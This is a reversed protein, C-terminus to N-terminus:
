MKDILKRFAPRGRTIKIYNLLDENDTPFEEFKAWTACQTLLIDPVTMMDGMLYTGKKRKLVNSIGRTYEWMLTDKIEPVRRDKPLVFNHRSATWLGAEVEDLVQQTFSDQHAREVTGAPYTLAGHKDALYTMIAVSDTIQAAGDILVPIKGSPNLATVRESHPKEPSLMYPQGLEELLWMVRFARSTPSGVVEYM